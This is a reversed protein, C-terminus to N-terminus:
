GQSSGHLLNETGIASTLMTCFDEPLNSKPIRFITLRGPKLMESFDLKSDRKCFTRATISALPLVFNSIRNIAATFATDELKSIAEMTRSVVEDPIPQSKLLEELEEKDMRIMDNLLYYLDLFTITSGSHPHYLTERRKAYKEADKGVEINKKDEQTTALESSNEREPEQVINAPDTESYLYYLAGKLMWMLRPAQESSTSFMERMVISMQEVQNQVAM